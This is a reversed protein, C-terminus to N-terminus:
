STNQVKQFRLIQRNKRTQDDKFVWNKRHNPAPSQGAVTQGERGFTIKICKKMSLATQAKIICQTAARTRECHAGVVGKDSCRSTNNGANASSKGNERALPHPVLM